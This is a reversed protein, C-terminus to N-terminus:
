RLPADGPVKGEQVRLGIGIQDLLEGTTLTPNFHEVLLRGDACITLREVRKLSDERFILFWGSTFDAEDSRGLEKLANTDQLLGSMREEVFLVKGDAGIEYTRVAQNPHYRVRWVGVLPGEGPPTETAPQKSKNLLFVVTSIALVAVMTALLANLAANKVGKSPEEQPSHALTERPPADTAPSTPEQCEQPQHPPNM